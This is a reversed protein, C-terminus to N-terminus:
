IVKEKENKYNRLIKIFSRLNLIIFVLLVNIALLIPTNTLLNNFIFQGVRGSIVFDEIEKYWYYIFPGCTRSSDGAFAFSPYNYFLFFGICFIILLFTFNLFIMIFYGIADDNSADKPQRKMKTLRFFVFKFHLFM